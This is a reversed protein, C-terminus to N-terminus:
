AFVFGYPRLFTEITTYKKLSCDSKHVCANTDVCFMNNINNLKDNDITIDRLRSYWDYFDMDSDLIKYVNFQKIVDKINISHEITYDTGSLVAIRRFDVMKIDLERLIGNINYFMVTHNYLSLGRIVRTCGYVFMDMDDSMCAWATKNIVMQVCLHDAEGDAIYFDINCLKLLRKSKETDEWSVRVCQKKTKEITIKLVRLKETEEQTKDEKELLIDYEYQLEVCKNEAVDKLDNRKYILEKKEDPPKGDFVFIPKINYYKFTRIMQYLSPIIGNTTAFKYLYISTDIVITKGSFTSLHKKDISQKSCNQMLYSNLKPIGM